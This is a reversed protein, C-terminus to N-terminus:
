RTRHLHSAIRICIGTTRRDCIFDSFTSAAAHSSRWWDVVSVLRAVLAARHLDTVLGAPPGCHLAPSSSHLLVCTCFSSLSVHAHTAGRDDSRGSRRRRGDAGALMADTRTGTAGSGVQRGAGAGSLVAQGHQYDSHSPLYAASHPLRALAVRRAGPRRWAIRAVSSCLRARCLRWGASCRSSVLHRGVVRRAYVSVFAHLLCCSVVYM